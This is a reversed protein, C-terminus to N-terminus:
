RDRALGLFKCVAFADTWLYRRQLASPTSAPASPLRMMLEIAEKTRPDPMAKSTTQANTMLPTFWLLAFMLWGRVSM